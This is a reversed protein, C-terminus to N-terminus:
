FGTLNKLTLSFINHEREWDLEVCHPPFENIEAYYPDIIISATGRKEEQCANVHEVIKQKVEEVSFLRLFAGFRFLIAKQRFTETTFVVAGLAARLSFYLNCLEEADDEERILMRVAMRLMMEAKRQVQDPTLTAGEDLIAELAAINIDLYNKAWKDSAINKLTQYYVWICLEQQTYSDRCTPSGPVELFQSSYSKTERLELGNTRDPRTKTVHDKGLTIGAKPESLLIVQYISILKAKSLVAQSKYRDTEFVKFGAVRNFKGKLKKEYGKISDKDIGQLDNLCFVKMVLERLHGDVYKKLAHLYEEDSPQENLLDAQDAWIEIIEKNRYALVVNDNKDVQCCESRMMRECDPIDSHGAIFEEKVTKFANLLDVIEASARAFAVISYFADFYTKEPRLLLGHFEPFVREKTKKIFDAPEFEDATNAYDCFASYAILSILECSSWVVEARCDVDKARDKEEESVLSDLDSLIEQYLPIHVQSPEELKKLFAGISQSHQSAKEMVYCLLQLYSFSEETKKPSLPRSKQFLEVHTRGNRDRLIRNETKGHEQLFDGLIKHAYGVSDRGAADEKTGPLSRWYRDLDDLTYDNKDAEIYHDTLSYSAM